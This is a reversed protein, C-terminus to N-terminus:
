KVTESLIASQGTPDKFIITIKLKESKTKNLKNIKDQIKEKSKPKVVAISKLSDIIRDIVGEINSIYAESNPGPEINIGLEPIKIACYKNKVIRTELAKKNSVIIKQEISYKKEGLPLIDNAKYNCNSCFAFTELVEGFYSIKDLRQKVSFTKKNCVPCIILSSTLIEESKQNKKKM